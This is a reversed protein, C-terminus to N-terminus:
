GESLGCTTSTCRMMRLVFGDLMDEDVRLSMSSSGATEGRGTSICTNARPIDRVPVMHGNGKEAGVM